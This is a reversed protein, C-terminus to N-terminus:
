CGRNLFHQALINQGLLAEGFKKPVAKTRDNKMRVDMATRVDKELIRQELMRKELM